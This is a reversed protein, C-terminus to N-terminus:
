GKPVYRIPLAAIGRHFPLPVQEVESSPVALAINSLRALLRTFAIGLERRALHMGICSHRGYGFTMHRNGDKRDLRFEQACSWHAEDRNASGSSLVVNAGKPIRVGDVELDRSAVRLLAQVSGELRLMEEVFQPVAEPHARLHAQLEPETALKRMGMALMNMTTENGGVFVTVLMWSRELPTFDTGDRKRMTALVHIVRGPPQLAARQLHGELYRFMEIVRTVLEVEREETNSNSVLGIIADTWNKFLPQDHRPLGFEDCVLTGPLRAAFAEVFEAEPKGAMDDILEDVLGTIRPTLEEVMKPPFLKMGVDRYDNHEPPDATVLTELAKMGAADWLAQAKPLFSKRTILDSRSSFTKVDLAAKVVDDYRSIWYIGTGPDLHVPAERRMASYYDFPCKAVEPDTIAYQDVERMSKGRTLM